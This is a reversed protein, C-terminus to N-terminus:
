SPAPKRSIIEPWPLADAALAIEFTRRGSSEDHEVERFGHEPFLTRVAQNKATPLYVGRLISAGAERALQGLYSLFATEVQRGMVRCSMLLADIEWITADIKKLIGVAVLGLDGHRDALRLWVVRAEPSAALRRVDELTHRRTTVNFQNTKHLLQHVRDLTAADVPGVEVTMQLERLFTAVDVAATRAAERDSDSRVMEARSRDERSMRPRDLLATERLAATYGLPNAPLEVVHVMPLEARIHAREVENDDVFVLADLGINLQKAVQRLQDAKPNWDAVIAAFHERRLLMDSHNALMDLVIDENNKSAVALLFGRRRYGLLAAQFDKFVNGPYEDGLKVGALGDDGLVGGWLTNDLDVVICKAAPRLTAVAARVIGKALEAQFPGAVATRALYWLKPDVWAEGGHRAVLGAFDFVHADGVTQLECALECNMRALLHTFGEPDGADFFHADYLHPRALNAVVIPATTKARTAKALNVLRERIASLRQATQQPGLEAAADALYRDVDELRLLIVVAVPNEHWLPSRDDLVMQELQGFPGCWPRMTLQQRRSEVLLYPRLLDTTFTALIALTPTAADLTAEIERAQKLYDTTKM